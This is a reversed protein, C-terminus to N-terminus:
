GVSLHKWPKPAVLYYEQAYQAYLASANSHTPAREPYYINFMTLIEQFSRTHHASNAFERFMPHNLIWAMVVYLNKCAPYLKNIRKWNKYVIVSKTFGTLTLFIDIPIQYKPLPYNKATNDEATPNFRSYQDTLIRHTFISVDFTLAIKKDTSLKVTYFIYRHGKYRYGLPPIAAQETETLKVFMRHLCFDRIYADFEAVTDFDEITCFKNSIFHSNNQTPCDLINNEM